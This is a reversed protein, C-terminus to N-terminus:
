GHALQEARQLFHPCRRWENENLCEFVDQKRGILDCFQVLIPPANGNRCAYYIYDVTGDSDSYNVQTYEDGPNLSENRNIFPCEM